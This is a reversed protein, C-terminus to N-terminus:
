GDEIWSVRSLWSLFTETDEVRYRAVSPAGGVKIGFGGLEQAAIIADEDTVDDGAMVPIRGVFPGTRMFQHLATGKDIGALAVESVMNGHMSRLGSDKIAAAEVLKRCLEGLGPKSRYHLAIAGAKLEIRLNNAKAFDGLTDAAKSLRAEGDAMTASVGYPDRIELGHSGAAYPTVVGVLGDLDSLERGTVIAMAGGTLIGLRKLAALTDSSLRVNAPDDVIPALTGDLDLFLAHKEWDPKAPPIM